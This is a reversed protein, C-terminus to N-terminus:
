LRFNLINDFCVQIDNSVKDFDGEFAHSYVGYTDMNQSHGVLSKIEGEPLSKAISVFTHRLEYLTIKTM